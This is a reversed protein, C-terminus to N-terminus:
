KSPDILRLLLYSAFLEFSRRPKRHIMLRLMEPEVGFVKRHTGTLWQSSGGAYDRL